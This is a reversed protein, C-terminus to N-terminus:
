NLMLNFYGMRAPLPAGDTLRLCGLPQGSAGPGSARITEMGAHDALASLLKQADDATRSVCEQAWLSDANKWVFAYASLGGDPAELGFAGLGLAHFLAIQDRWQQETRLVLPDAQAASARYLRDLAPVDDDRLARFGAQPAGQVIHLGDALYFAPEYGFPRYFDFLWPEAPILMSAARGREADIRFSEELLRSMLHRRRFEPHTCAGYIYTVSLEQGQLRLAYPLMQTMAALLGDEICLLTDSVSLLRDLYYPNFGSDDPFCLEWLACVAPRDAEEAFRIMM